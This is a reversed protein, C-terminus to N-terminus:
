RGAADSPDSGPPLDPVPRPHATVLVTGGALRSTLDDTRERLQQVMEADVLRAGSAGPLPRVEGHLVAHVVAPGGTSDV